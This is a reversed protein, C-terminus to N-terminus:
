RTKGQRQSRQRCWRCQGSKCEREKHRSTYWDFYAQNVPVYIAGGEDPKMEPPKEEEKLEKLTKRSGQNRKRHRPGM